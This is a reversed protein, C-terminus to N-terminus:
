CDGTFPEDMFKALEDANEPLLLDASFEHPKIVISEDKSM